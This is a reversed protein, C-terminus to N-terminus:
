ILCMRKMYQVAQRLNRADLRFVENGGGNCRRAAVFHLLKQEHYRWSKQTRAPITRSAVLSMRSCWTRGARMRTALDSTCGIKYTDRGTKLIYLQTPSQPRQLTKHTYCALLQKLVTHRNLSIRRRPASPNALDSVVCCKNSENTKAVSYYRVKGNADLVKYSCNAQM